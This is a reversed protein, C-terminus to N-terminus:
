LLFLLICTTRSVTLIGLLNSAVTVALALAANGGALHTLAVGSSLTTPMCCFIGLGTVLERPQLQVLMILRSFSPTLLLISILGFLGLPWGKVAAGIAETRLTLGSIIFIGCTSIKTFSYKDALCGLTPNAFGLGVGSVLALPLFNDSAFSLLEKGFYLRQASASIGGDGGLKDSPQCARISRSIWRRGCPDQCRRFVVSRNGPSPPQRLCLFPNQTSALTSAIAM